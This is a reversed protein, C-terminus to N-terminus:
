KFHSIKIRCDELFDLISTYTEPDNSIEKEFLNMIKYFSSQYTTIKNQYWNILEDLNVGEQFYLEAIENNTKM